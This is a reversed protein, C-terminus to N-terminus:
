DIVHSSKVTWSIIHHVFISGARKMFRRFETAKNDQRPIDHKIATKVALLGLQFIEELFSPKFPLQFFKAVKDKSIIGNYKEVVSNTLVFSFSSKIRGKVTVTRRWLRWSWDM